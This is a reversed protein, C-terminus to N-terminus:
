GNSLSYKQVLDKSTWEQGATEPALLINVEYDENSYQVVAADPLTVYHFNIGPRLIEAITLFILAMSQPTARKHGVMMPPLYLEGWSAKKDLLVVEFGRRLFLEDAISQLVFRPNDSPGLTGASGLALDYIWNRFRKYLRRRGDESSKLQRNEILEIGDIFIEWSLDLYGKKVVPDLPVRSRRETSAMLSERLQGKREASIEPTILTEKKPALPLGEPLMVPSGKTSVELSPDIPGMFNESSETEKGVPSAPDQQSKKSVQNDTTLIQEEPQPAMPGNSAAGAKETKEQVPGVANDEIEQSNAERPALLWVGLFVAMFILLKLIFWAVNHKKLSGRTRKSNSSGLLQGQNHDQTLIRPKICFPQFVM